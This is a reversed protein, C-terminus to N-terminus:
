AGAPLSRLLFIASPWLILIFENKRSGKADVRMWSQLVPVLVM